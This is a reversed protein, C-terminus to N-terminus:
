RRPHGERARVDGPVPLGRPEHGRRRARGRERSRARRCAADAASGLGAAEFRAAVEEMRLGEPVVVRHTMVAGAALRDLVERAPLNAALAYEGARLEAARGQLRALLAFARADRIAGSAELLAAVGSLTAGRPIEVIVETAASSPPQLALYGVAGLGGLGLLLAVAALRAIRKM